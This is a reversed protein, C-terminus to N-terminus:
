KKSEYYCELHYREDEVAVFNTGQFVIKGCQPCNNEEIIEYIVNDSICDTDFLAERDEQNADIEAMQEITSGDPYNEPEPVFEIITTRTLRIKKMRICEGELQSNKDRYVM